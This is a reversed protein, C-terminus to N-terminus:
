EAEHWGLRRICREISRNTGVGCLEAGGRNLEGVIKTLVPNGEEPSRSIWEAAGKIAIFVFITSSQLSVAPGAVLRVSGQSGCVDLCGFQELLLESTDERPTEYKFDSSQSQALSTLWGSSVVNSKNRLLLDCSWPGRWGLPRGGSAILIRDLFRALPVSSVEATEWDVDVQVPDSIKLDSAAARSSFEHVHLLVGSSGKSVSRTFGSAVRSDQVDVEFGNTRLWVEVAPLLARDTLYSAYAPHLSM